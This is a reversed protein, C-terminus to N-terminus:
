RSFILICVVITRPFGRDQPSGHGFILVNHCGRTTEYVSIFDATKVHGDRYSQGGANLSSLSILRNKILIKSQVDGLM